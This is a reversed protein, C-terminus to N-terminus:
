VGGNAFSHVRVPPPVGRLYQRVPNAHKIKAAQIDHQRWLAMRVVDFVEPAHVKTGGDLLVDRCETTGCHRQYVVRCIVQPFRERSALPDGAPSNPAPKAMLRAARGKMSTKSM